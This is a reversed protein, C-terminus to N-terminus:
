FYQQVLNAEEYFVKRSVIRSAGITITWNNRICLVAGRGKLKFCKNGKGFSECFKDDYKNYKNLLYKEDSKIWWNAVINIDDEEAPCSLHVKHKSSIIPVLNSVRDIYSIECHSSNSSNYNGIAVKIKHKIFCHFSFVTLLPLVIVTFSSVIIIIKIKKKMVM